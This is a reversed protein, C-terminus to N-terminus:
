REGTGGEKVTEQQGFKALDEEGGRSASSCPLHNRYSSDDAFVRKCNPCSIAM